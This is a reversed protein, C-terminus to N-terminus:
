AASSLAQSRLKTKRPPPAEHPAHTQQGSRVRARQLTRTAKRSSTENRPRRRPHNISAQGCPKGRRQRAKGRATEQRPLHARRSRVGTCRRCDRETRRETGSTQRASQVAVAGPPRSTRECAKRRAVRRPV